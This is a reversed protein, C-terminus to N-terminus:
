APDPKPQPGVPRYRLFDTARLRTAIAKYPAPPATFDFCDQLDDSIADRTGLSPLGFAEETFRLLSGFEHDVHSVYGRKAYPSIVMLPVRFGLGMADVQKPAVHDYFGGWDDWVIFIATSNWTPSAGIANVVSAVWQPGSTSQGLPHDSNAQSPTVWTVSSLNGAPADTLVTTEPSVVYSNWDAGFRIQRVADYASWIYGAAGYTPAYYRWSVHAADM